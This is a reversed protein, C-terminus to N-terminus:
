AGDSPPRSPQIPEPPAVTPRVPAVQAAALQAIRDHLRAMEEDRPSAFVAAGHARATRHLAGPLNVAFEACVDLTLTLANRPMPCGVAREYSLKVTAWLIAFLTLAALLDLVVSAARPGLFQLVM